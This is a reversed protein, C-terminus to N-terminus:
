KRLVIRFGNVEFGTRGPQRRQLQELIQPDPAPGTKFIIRRVTLPSAHFFHIYDEFFLRNLTTRRYLWREVTRKDVAELRDTLFQGMQRRTLTLHSWPELPWLGARVLAAQAGGRLHHGAASSWIPGFDSYLVGGPRLVRAAESLVGPLDEMHEFASSSFVLDCSGDPLPLSNADGQLLRYGPSHVEQEVKLDLSTWSATGAAAIFEPPLSGGIELVDKGSIDFVREFFAFRLREQYRPPHRKMIADLTESADSDQHATRLEKAGEAPQGSLRLVESLLFRHEPRPDTTARKRVETLFSPSPPSSHLRAIMRDLADPDTAIAALQEYEENSIAADADTSEAASHEDDSIGSPQGHLETM